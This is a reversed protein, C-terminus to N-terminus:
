NRMKTPHINAKLHVTLFFRIKTARSVTGYKCNYLMAFARVVLKYCLTMHNLKRPFKGM